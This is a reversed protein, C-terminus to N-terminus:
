DAPRGRWEAVFEDRFRLLTALRAQALRRGADTNMAGPLGLLKKEIHDLTYRRDDAPRNEALPDTDHALARDLKGGIYFMRALGVAGLADIRDADQVIKAEITRAEVNASYSHAEIAHAVGPLAERPFRLEALRAVGKRASLLSAKSREPHDKPLNVLDHLYCAAMVVLSNAGATSRLLGQANAWVRNLHSLDHAGDAQAHTVVLEVLRPRWYSISENGVCAVVDADDAVAQRIAAKPVNGSSTM